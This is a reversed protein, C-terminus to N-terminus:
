GLAIGGLSDGTGRRWKRQFVTEMEAVFSDDGFPRGAYTCKRMVLIEETGSEAQHMEAWTEIGGSREWFDMDLVGSRDGRGALHAGASSYRYDEPRATLGARCPNSEVYRLGIWLHREAMPCSYFRAQWLHGSRGRRINVAQAYRGNARRFLVALSDARDPVAVFHVHNTMLCYALVRVGADELNERILRLYMARDAVSFFVKQRDTGRQTIHYPLRPGICLSSGPM